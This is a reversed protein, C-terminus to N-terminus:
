PLAYNLAGLKCFPSSRLRNEASGKLSRWSDSLMPWLMLCARPTRRATDQAQCVEALEGELLFIRQALDEAEGHTSALVTASEVEVRSVREQADREALAARDEVARVVAVISERAVAAEQTSAETAHVV